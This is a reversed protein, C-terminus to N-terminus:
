TILFCERNLHPTGWFAPAHHKVVYFVAYPVHFFLTPPYIM